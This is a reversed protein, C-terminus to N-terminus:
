GRDRIAETRVEKLLKLFGTLSIQGSGTPGDARSSVM